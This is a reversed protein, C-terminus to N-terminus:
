EDVVEGSAGPQSPASRRDIGSVTFTLLDDCDLPNHCLGRHYYCHFRGTERFVETLMERIVQRDDENM